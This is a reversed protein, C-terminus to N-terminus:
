LPVSCYSGDAFFATVLLHASTSTVRAFPVSVARNSGNRLGRSVITRGHDVMDIHFWSQRTADIAVSQWFLKGGPQAIASATATMNHGSTGWCTPSHVPGSPTRAEAVGALAVTALTIALASLATRRM